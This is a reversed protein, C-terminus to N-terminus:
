DDVEDGYKDGFDEYRLVPSRFAEKMAEYEELLDELSEGLPVIRAVTVSDPKTTDDKIGYFVEHIGYMGNKIVVRYNWTM